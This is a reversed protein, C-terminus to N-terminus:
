ATIITVTQTPIAIIPLLISTVMATKQRNTTTSTRSHAKFNLITKSHMDLDLRHLIHVALTEPIEATELLHRILLRHFCKPQAV